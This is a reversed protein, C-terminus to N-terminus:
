ARVCVCYIIKLIVTLVVVTAYRPCVSLNGMRDEKSHVYLQIEESCVPVVYPCGFVSLLKRLHM